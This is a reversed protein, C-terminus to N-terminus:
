RAAVRAPSEAIELFNRGLEEGFQDKVEVRVVWPGPTDPTPVVGSLTNGRRTWRVAVPNVDIRVRPEVKIWSPVARGNGDVVHVAVRVQDHPWCALRPGIEVRASLARPALSLTAADRDADAARFRVRTAHGAALGISVPAPIYADAADYGVLVGGAHTLRARQGNGLLIRGGSVFSGHPLEVGVIRVTDPASRPGELGFRDVPQVRVDYDGPALHDILATRASTRLARVLTGDPRTVSVNYHDAGAVRLWVATTARPKGQLSILLPQSVAVRTAALLARPRGAPDVPGVSRAMGEPLVKWKNGVAAVMDGRVAAVTVGTRGSMIIGRGGEVVASVKRPARVLVAIRPPRARPVQVDIRGALLDLSLAPTSPQGAKGLELHTRRGFRVRAGAALDLEVGGDLRQTAGSRGGDIESGIRHASKARHPTRAGAPAAILTIAMLSTAIFTKSHAM